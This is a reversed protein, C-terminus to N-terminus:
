PSPPAGEGEGTEQGALASAEPRGDYSSLLAAAEQRIERALSEPELVRAEKGFSLIWKKVDFVGSATMSLVISGDESKEIEQGAAWQREEVYRAQSPSFWVRVAIPDDFTLRFSSALLADADFDAPYEFSDGGVELKHIREVALIRITAFRTVRVFVYLGGDHEVIRLPDIRFSRVENRSFAHYTVTCTRRGVIAGILAELTAEKGAYRKAFEATSAFLHDMHALGGAGLGGGAGAALFLLKEKLAALPKELETDRLPHERAFLYSLLILEQPSLRVHPLSVNPLRAAYDESLHWRKERELPPREDYLPFRMEELTEFLRYVSRRSLGLERQIEAITVGRSRQLLTVAQILKTLNKWHM